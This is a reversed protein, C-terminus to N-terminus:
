NMIEACGLVHIIYINHNLRIGLVIINEKKIIMCQSVGSFVFQVLPFNSGHFICKTVQNYDHRSVPNNALISYLSTYLGCEHILWVGVKLCSKPSFIFVGFFM